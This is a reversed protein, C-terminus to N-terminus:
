ASKREKPWLEEYDFGLAKAIVKAVKKGKRDGNIVMAIFQETVHAWEALNRGSIGREIMRIKIKKKREASNM